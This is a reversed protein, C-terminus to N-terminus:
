HIPFRPDRWTIPVFKRIVEGDFTIEVIDKQGIEEKSATNVWKRFETLSMKIM